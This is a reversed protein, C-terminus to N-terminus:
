AYGVDMDLKKALENLHPNKDVMKIFKEQPTYAKKLKTDKNIETAVQLNYNSLEKRIFTLFDAKQSLFDDELAKNEVILHITDGKLEPTPKFISALSDKGKEKLIIRFSKVAEEYKEPTFAETPRKSIEEEEDKVDEKTKTSPNISITNSFSKTSSRKLKPPGSPIEEKKPRKLSLSPEPTEEQAIVTNAAPIDYNTSSRKISADL